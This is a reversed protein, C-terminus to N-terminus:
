LSEAFERAQASCKRIDAETPRGIFEYSGFVEWGMKEAHGEFKRQAGGSWGYSGFRFVKKKKIGKIEAMDLAYVMPPFLSGEYTPAGVIVGRKTWLSPLIYSTHTRSVDFAEFPVGTEKVAAIVEGLMLHTNGYM